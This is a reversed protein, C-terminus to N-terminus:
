PATRSTIASASLIAARSTSRLSVTRDVNFAGIRILMAEILLRSSWFLVGRHASQYSGEVLFPGGANLVNNGVWVRFGARDYIRNQVVVLLGARDRSIGSIRNEALNLAKVILDFPNEVRVRVGVV